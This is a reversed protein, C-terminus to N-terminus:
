DREHLLRIINDALHDVEDHSHMASIALRLRSTEKPVSPPRIAAAYFGMEKLQATLLQTRREEGVIVPVIQTTSRGTNIGAMM